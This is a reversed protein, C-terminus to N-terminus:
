KQLLRELSEMPNGVELLYLQDILGGIRMLVSMDYIKAEEKKAVGNVRPIEGYYVGDVEVDSLLKDVLSLAFTAIISIPKTGFTVCARIEAHNPIARIINLFLQEETDENQNEPMKVIKVQEEELGLEKVEELFNQYNDATDQNEPRIAIILIDEKRELHEAIISIIPFSTERNEEKLQFGVPHYVLKELGFKGQLPITTLFVKKM